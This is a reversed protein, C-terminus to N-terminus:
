HQNSKDNKSVVTDFIHEFIYTCMLGQLSFGIILMFPFVNIEWQPKIYMLFVPIIEIVIVAISFPLFGFSMWFANKLINGASNKFKAILPFIFSVMVGWITILIWFIIRLIFGINGEVINSIRLDFYFVVGIGAFILWLITSQVFNEKFASIFDKTIYSEQKKKIKFLVTYMATVSAGATIVPLCGLVCILNLLILDGVTTMFRYFRNDMGYKSNM